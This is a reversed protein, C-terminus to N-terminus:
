LNLTYTTANSVLRRKIDDKKKVGTRLFHNNTATQNVHQRSEEACTSHAAWVGRVPHSANDLSCCNKKTKKRKKRKKKISYSRTNSTHLTKIQGGARERKRKKGRGRRGEKKTPPDIYVEKKKGENAKQTLTRAASTHRM